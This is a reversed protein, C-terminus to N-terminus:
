MGAKTWPKWVAENDNLWKKAADKADMKKVDVLAAMAGIMPTTFNIRSYTM